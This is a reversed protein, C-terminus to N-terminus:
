GIMRAVNVALHYNKEAYVEVVDTQAHGLGVQAAEVGFRKRVQTGFSHRLQNPHWSPVLSAGFDTERRIRNAKQIGYQVTRRYSDPTYVDGKPRKPKSRKASQRRARARLEYPYIRTKRNKGAAERRLQNRWDEAERPSFLFADTRRNWFLKLIARAQPGMPVVREHGRWRNKHDAPRYVWIEETVDIDCPRM